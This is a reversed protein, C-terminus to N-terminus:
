TRAEIVSATFRDGFVIAFQNAAERWNHQPMNWKKSINRVEIGVDPKRRASVSHRDQEREDRDERHEHEGDNTRLFGSTPISTRLMLLFNPSKTASSSTLM